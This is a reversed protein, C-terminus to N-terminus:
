AAGRKGFHLTRKMMSPFWGFARKLSRFYAASFLVAAVTVFLGGVGALILGHSLVSVGFCTVSGFAAAVCLALLVASFAIVGALVLAEYVILVPILLIFFVVGLFTPSNNVDAAKETSFVDEGRRSREAIEKPSPLSAIIESDSMGESEREAFYGDYESMLSYKKDDSFDEACTMLEYM